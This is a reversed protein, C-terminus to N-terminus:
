QVSSSKSFSTNKRVDNVSLIKTFVGPDSGRPSLSCGGHKLPAVTYTQAKGAWTQGEARGRICVCASMIKGNLMWM